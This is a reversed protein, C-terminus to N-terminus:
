GEGAQQEPAAAASRTRHRRGGRRLRLASHQAQGREHTGRDVPAPWHGQDRHDRGGGIRRGAISPRSRPRRRHARRGRRRWRGFRREGGGSGRACHARRTRHRRRDRPRHRGRARAASQCAVGHHPGRTRGCPRPRRAHSGAIPARRGPPRRAASAAPRRRPAARRCQGRPRAGVDFVILPSGVAVKDGPAGTISVVRGSVPAPVEVAAKDTM